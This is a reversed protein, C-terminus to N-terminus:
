SQHLDNLKHPEEIPIQKNFHGVEINTYHDPIKNTELLHKKKIFRCSDLVIDATYLSYQLVYDFLSPLLVSKSFLRLVVCIIVFMLAMAVLIAIMTPDIYRETVPPKYIAASVCSFIVFMQSTICYTESPGHCFSLTYLKPLFVESFEPSSPRRIFILM